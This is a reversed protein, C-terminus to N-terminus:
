RAAASRFIDALRFASVFGIGGTNTPMVALQKVGEVTWSNSNGLDIPHRAPEDILVGDKIAVGGRSLRGFIDIASERDRALSSLVDVVSADAM